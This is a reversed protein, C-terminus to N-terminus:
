LLDGMGEAAQEETVLLYMLTSEAKKHGLRKQVEPITKGGDLMVHACTHKLMHPHCKPLDLLRKNLRTMMKNVADRTLPFLLTDPPLKAMERLEKVESLMPDQHEVFPQITKNSGKLRQVTLYGHQIDCARLSTAESIRLAHWFCVKLLTRYHPPAEALLDRFQQPTFHRM